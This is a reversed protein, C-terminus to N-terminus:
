VHARGIEIQIVTKLAFYDFPKIIYGYPKTHLAKTLTKDDAYSTLYVIPINFRQNIIESIEIGDMNGELNIDMLIMDPPNTEISVLTENRTTIIDSVSYQMEMLCYKIDEAIIKEDEVILIKKKSTM